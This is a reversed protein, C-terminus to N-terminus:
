TTRVHSGLFWIVQWHTGWLEKRIGTNALFAEESGKPTHGQAETETFVPFVKKLVHM